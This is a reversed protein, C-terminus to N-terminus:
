FDEELLDGWARKQIVEPKGVIRSHDHPPEFGLNRAAVRRPLSEFGRYLTLGAVAFIKQCMSAHNSDSRRM